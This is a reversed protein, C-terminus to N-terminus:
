RALRLRVFQQVSQTFRIRLKVGMPERTCFFWLVGVGYIAGGALIELLLLINNHPYFFWRMWFLLAVMPFCLAIPYSYAQNVFQWVSVKLLRCLYYPLFVISTCLLPIATGVADGILGFRRILLISFALNAIGEIVLAYALVKHKAMGFLIRTSAGQARYLTRPLILLVLLTYSSLYKRGVWAVIIPKGLMVLIICIPFIVMACARNGAIFLHKMRSTDGQADFHSSMPVFVDAMSDVINVAYDVLRSGISFYTVAAASLFVGIVIADSQFRFRDAVIIIFTIAGYNILERFSALNVYRRGYSLPLIHRVAVIYSCSVFLPLSVTVIAVTLLGRGHNLAVVILIARLLTSGVQIINLWYFKQLGQLIGTFVSLPFGLALATGVILFLLRATRLFVSSVHFISDVYFSGLVTLSLLALALVGYSFLSTNVLCTIREYDKVAQYKAIFKVISSRIGLDFLGYYGTVSFVLVWLGFADDGLKHLIFPSLFFGVVITVALGFWNSGINKLAEVKLNPM